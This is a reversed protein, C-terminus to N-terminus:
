LNTAQIILLIQKNWHVYCNNEKDHQNKLIMWLFINVYVCACCDRRVHITTRLLVFFRQKVHNFINIDNIGFNYIFRRHFRKQIFSFMTKKNNRRWNLIWIALKNANNIYQSSIAYFYCYVFFDNQRTFFKYFSNREFKM